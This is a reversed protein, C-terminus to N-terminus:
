MKFGELISAKEYPLEAHYKGEYGFTEWLVQEYNTQTIEYTPMPEGVYFANYETEVEVVGCGLELITELVKLICVDTYYGIESYRYSFNIIVIGDDQPKPAEKTVELLVVRRDLSYCYIRHPAINDYFWSRFGNKINQIYYAIKKSQNFSYGIQMIDEILLENIRMEKIIIEYDDVTHYPMIDLGTHAAVKQQVLNAFDKVSCPKHLRIYSNFLSMFHYFNISFYIDALTLTKVSM